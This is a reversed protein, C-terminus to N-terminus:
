RQAIAEKCHLKCALDQTFFQTVLILVEWLCAIPKFFFLAAAFLLRPVLPSVLLIWMSMLEALYIHKLKALTARWRVARPNKLLAQSPALALIDFVDSASYLSEPSM